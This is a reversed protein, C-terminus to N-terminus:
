AMVQKQRLPNLFMRGKQVILVPLSLSKRKRSRLIKLSEKREKQNTQELPLNKLNLTLIRKSDLFGIMAKKEKKSQGGTEPRSEDESQETKVKTPLAETEIADESKIELEV